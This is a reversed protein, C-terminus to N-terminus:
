IIVLNLCILMVYNEKFTLMHTHTNIHKYLHISILFTSDSKVAQIRPFMLDPAISTHQTYDPNSSPACLQLHYGQYSDTILFWLSTKDDLGRSNKRKKKLLRVWNHISWPRDRTRHIFGQYMGWLVEHFYCM